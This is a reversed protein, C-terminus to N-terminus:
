DDSAVARRPCITCQFASKASIWLMPTGCQPCPPILVPPPLAAAPAFPVPPPLAASGGPPAFPSITPVPVPVTVPVPVPPFLPLPASPDSAVAAPAASALANVWRGVMVGAGLLCGAGGIALFPGLWVHVNEIEAPWSFAYLVATLGFGGATAYIARALGLRGGVAQRLLM